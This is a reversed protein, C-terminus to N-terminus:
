VRLANHTERRGNFVDVEPPRFPLGAIAECCGEPLTDELLWYDYPSTEHRASKLCALFSDAVPGSSVPGSAATATIQTM